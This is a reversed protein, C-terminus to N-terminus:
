SPPTRSVSQCGDSGVNEDWSRATRLREGPRRTSQPCGSGICRPRRVPRDSTNRGAPRYPRGRRGRLSCRPHNRDVASAALRPPGPVYVVHSISRGSPRGFLLQGHQLSEVVTTAVRTLFEADAQLLEDRPYTALVSLLDKAAHSDPAYGSRQQIDAVKDTLFPISEISANYAKSTYLGVIRHNAVTDSEDDRASVTIEDLPADRHVTSRHSSKSLILLREDPAM